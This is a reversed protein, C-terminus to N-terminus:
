VAGRLVARYAKVAATQTPEEMCRLLLDPVLDPILRSRGRVQYVGDELLNKFREHDASPSMLELEGELYSVRPVASEGRMALLEEYDAWGVAHLRVRQDPVDQVPAAELPFVASM